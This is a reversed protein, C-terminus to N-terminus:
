NLVKISLKKKSLHILPTIVEIVGDKTGEKILKNMAEYYSPRCDPYGSSDEEVAGIYIKKAGIVEAWSVAM